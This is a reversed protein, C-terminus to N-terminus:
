LIVLVPSESSHQDYHPCQGLDVCPMAHPHEAPHAGGASTQQVVHGDHCYHIHPEQPFDKPEEQDLSHINHIQQPVQNHLAM